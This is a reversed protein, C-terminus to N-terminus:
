MLGHAAIREIVNRMHDLHEEITKSLVFVDYLYILVFKLGKLVDDMMRKFPIPENMLGFLMFLFDYKGYRTLFTTKERFCGCLLIKLYGTCLSLKSFYDAGGLEDFIEEIMPIPWREAKM